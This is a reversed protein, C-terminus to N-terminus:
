RRGAPRLGNIVRRVKEEDPENTVAIGDSSEDSSVLVVAEAGPGSGPENWLEPANQMTKM